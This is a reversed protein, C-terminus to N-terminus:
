RAQLSHLSYGGPPNQKHQQQHYQTPEQSQVHNSMYDINAYTGTRSHHGQSFDYVTQTPEYKYQQSHPPGQSLSAQQHSQYSNKNAPETQLQNHYFFKHGSQRPTNSNYAVYSSSQHSSTPQSQDTSYPRSADYQNPHMSLLGDRAYHRLDSARDSIPVSSSHAQNPHNASFNVQNSVQQHNQNSLSIMSVPQQRISQPSASQNTTPSSTDSTSLHMSATTAPTSISGSAPSCCAGVPSQNEPMLKTTGGYLQKVMTCRNDLCIPAKSGISSNFHDMQNSSSVQAELQDSTNVKGKMRYSKLTTQLPRSKFDDSKGGVGISPTCQTHATSDIPNTNTTTFNDAANLPSSSSSQPSNCNGYLSLYTGSSLYGAASSGSCHGSALLHKYKEAYADDTVLNDMFKIYMIALKLTEIRSLRKEYAFSPVKKRLRDFATNLNYMRRRERINAARRQAMTAVRRRPKTYKAKVAPGNQNTTRQTTRCGSVPPKSTTDLEDANSEALLRDQPPSRDDDARSADSKGDSDIESSNSSDPPDDVASTMPRGRRRESLKSVERKKLLSMEFDNASSPAQQEKGAKQVRTSKPKTMNQTRYSPYSKQKLAIVVKTKSPQIEMQTQNVRRHSRDRDSDVESQHHRRTQEIRTSSSSM